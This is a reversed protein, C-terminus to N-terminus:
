VVPAKRSVSDGRRQLNEQTREEALCRQGSRQESPKIANSINYATNVLAIHSFAQPFNGLLRQTSIDYEEALLGVDNCLGVLQKFLRRADASRGLLVYADALWFSAPIFAGEGPPLGDKAVATDYRLVFGGRMLKKEIAAITGQIRPDEPPLFGVQPILLASADLHESDYAQVFAGVNTNFGRRCAEDHIEARIRRWRELPGNFGFVEIGKIARDFAVWAMVKSHTFHRPGGRVEWIGADPNRWATELHRLLACQLDWGAANQLGRARAHHAADMIEGYVDLQLQGAAANGIRVPKSNEYGDLWPVEREALWREGRIGYMIQLESPSGAAARLLWDRWARAEDYHGSNMLSLLTLTADRLWCFRYDWNRTGGLHEPLSTTPAAIIGGSPAHTLAKLTILSRTVVDPYLETSRGASAWEQWFQKTLRLSAAVDIPPPVPLHSPAYTLVFPLRQGASVTFDGVTTLGRGRLEVPTRLVVMDPGTIAVLDGNECRTVWPTWGGYGFRVVFEAHMPMRGRKGVVLRVIHSPIQGQRLPMFDVLTVADAGDGSTFETELILTNKLYRRSVHTGSASGAPVIQWRGRDPGGLLASFCAESDFRPWCLWDISGSKSVLAATECDGILAYDEIPNSM